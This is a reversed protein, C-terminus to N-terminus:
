EEFILVADTLHTPPPLFARRWAADSTTALLTALLGSVPDGAAAANGQGLAAVIRESLDKVLALKQEQLDSYMDEHIFTRISLGLRRRDDIRHKRLEGHSCELRYCWVECPTFM